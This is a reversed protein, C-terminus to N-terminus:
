GKQKQTGLIYLNALADTSVVCGEMNLKEWYGPYNPYAVWNKEKWELFAVMQERGRVAEAQAGAQYSKNVINFAHQNGRLETRGVSQEAFIAAKKEIREIESAPLTM